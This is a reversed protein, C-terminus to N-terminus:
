EVLTQRVVRFLVHDGLKLGFAATLERGFELAHELIHGQGIRHNVLELRM